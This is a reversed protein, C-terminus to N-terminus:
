RQSATRVFFGNQVLFRELMSRVSLEDDVLLATKSAVRSTPQGSWESSKQSARGECVEGRAPNAATSPDPTTRSVNM